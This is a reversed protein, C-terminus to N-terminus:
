KERQYEQIVMVERAFVTKDNLFFNFIPTYDYSISYVAIAMDKADSCNLEDGNEGLCIKEYNHLDDLKKVYQISTKFNKADM